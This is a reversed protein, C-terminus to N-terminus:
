PVYWLMDIDEQGEVRLITVQFVGVDGPLPLAPLYLQLPLATPIELNFKAMAPSSDCTQFPNSLGVPLEIM